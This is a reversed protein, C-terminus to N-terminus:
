SRFGFLDGMPQCTSLERSGSIKIKNLSFPLFFGEQITSSSSLPSSLASGNELSLNQEVKKLSVTYM